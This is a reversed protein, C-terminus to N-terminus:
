LQFELGCTGKQIDRHNPLVATFSELILTALYFISCEIEIENLSSKKLTFMVSSINTRYRFNLRRHKVIFATYRPKMKEECVCVCVCVCVIQFVKM